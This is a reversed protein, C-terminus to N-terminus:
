RNAVRGLFRFRSDTLHWSHACPYRILFQGRESSMSPLRAISAFAFDYVIRGISRQWHSPALWYKNMVAEDREGCKHGHMVSLIAASYNLQNRARTNHPLCVTGTAHAWHFRNWKPTFTTPWRRPFDARYRATAHIQVAEIHVNALITSPWPELEWSRNLSLCVYITKISNRCFLWYKSKYLQILSIMRSISILQNSKDFMWKSPRACTSSLISLLLQKLNLKWVVIHSLVLCVCDTAKKIQRWRNSGDDCHFSFWRALVHSVPVFKALCRIAEPFAALITSVSFISSFRTFVCLM